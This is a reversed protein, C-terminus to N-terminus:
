LLFLDHQVHVVNISAIELCIPQDSLYLLYPTGQQNQYSDIFWNQASFWVSMALLAQQKQVDNTGETVYVGVYNRPWKFGEISICDQAKVLSTSLGVLCLTFAIILLSLARARPTFFYLGPLSTVAAPQNLM